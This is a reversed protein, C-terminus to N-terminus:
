LGLAFSVLAYRLGAYGGLRIRSVFCWFLWRVLMLYGGCCVFSIFALLGLCALWVRGCAVM